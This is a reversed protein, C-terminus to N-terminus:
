NSDQHAVADVDLMYEQSFAPTENRHSFRVLYRPRSLPSFFSRSSLLIRKVPPSCPRQIFFIELIENHCRRFVTRAM